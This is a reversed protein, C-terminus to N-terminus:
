FGEAVDEMVMVAGIIIEGSKTSIASMNEIIRVVQNGQPCRGFFIPECPKQLM